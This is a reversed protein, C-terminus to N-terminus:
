LAPSEPTIVRKTKLLKRQTTSATQAPSNFAGTYPVTVDVLGSGDEPPASPQSPIPTSPPSTSTQSEPPHTILLHSLDRPVFAPALIARKRIDFNLTTIPWNGPLRLFATLDELEVFESEKVVPERRREQHISVGDRMEHAGYSFGEKKELLELQGMIRSMWAASNPEQTRYFVKTNFLSTLTEADNKGYVAHLQHVDQIAAVFCAGYKRGRSLANMLSPLKHLSPLEDLFFWLHRDQSPPLSLISKAAVDLWVSLLPRLAEIKQANSAIFIWSEGSDNEIWRRISFLPEEGEDKLYLLSKCYNALTAKISLTTKDIKDTVLPAAPTGAVLNGLSQLSEAFMPELLFRTKAQNQAHLKLAASAFITHASRIWFPDSFALHEPMLSIAATDFDALDRCEQWINWAPTREDLPNLLIDIGPRYYNPVFAGDIDYVIARQKKARVQDMLEKMGVSKGSGTTGAFLIHQVESNKVLPAGALTFDSARQKKQLLQCLAKTTVRDQGTVPTAEHQSKGKRIFYAAYLIFFTLTIAAAQWLAFYFAQTCRQVHHRAKPSETFDVARLVMSAGNPDRVTHKVQRDHIWLKLHADKYQDLIYRDYATTHSLFSWVCVATFLIAAIMLGYKLVQWFM